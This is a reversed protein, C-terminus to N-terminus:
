LTLKRRAIADMVSAEAQLVSRCLQLLSFRLLSAWLSHAQSSETSWLSNHLWEVPKMVFRGVCLGFAAGMRQHHLCWVMEFQGADVASAIMESIWTMRSQQSRWHFRTLMWQIVHMHGNRVVHTGPPLFVVAPYQKQLWKVAHLHGQMAAYSLTWESCCDPHNAQLWRLAPLDGQTAALVTANATCSLEYLGLQNHALAWQLFELQSQQIAKDVSISLRFELEQAHLWSVIEQHNCTVSPGDTISWLCNQDHLWQIVHLHGCQAAIEFVLRSQRDSWQHQLLELRWWALVPVHGAAAVQHIVRDLQQETM